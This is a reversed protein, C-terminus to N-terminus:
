CKSLADGTKGKLANSVLLRNNQPLNFSSFLNFFFASSKMLGFIILNSGQDDERQTFISPYDFFKVLNKRIQM